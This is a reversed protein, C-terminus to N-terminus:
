QFLFLTAPYDYDQHSDKGPYVKPVQCLLLSACFISAGLEFMLSTTSAQSGKLQFHPAVPELFRLNGLAVTVPFLQTFLYVRKHASQKKILYSQSVHATIHQISCNGPSFPVKSM